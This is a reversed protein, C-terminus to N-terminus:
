RLGGSFLRSKRFYAWFSSYFSAWKLSQAPKVAMKRRVDRM